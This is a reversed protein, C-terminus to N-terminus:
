MGRLPSKGQWTAYDGMVDMSGSDVENINNVAQIQSQVSGGSAGSEEYLLRKGSCMVQPKAADIHSAVNSPDLVNYDHLAIIQLAPCSFFQSQLSTPLDTGGGTSIWIGWDGIVNRITNARDCRSVSPVPSNAGTLSICHSPVKCWNPAIQNMHGMGKNKLLLSPM